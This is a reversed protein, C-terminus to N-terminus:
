ALWAQPAFPFPGPRHLREHAARSRITANWCRRVRALDYIALALVGAALVFVGAWFVTFRVASQSLKEHFPVAGLFVLALTVLTAVFLFNRRFRFSSLPKTGSRGPEKSQMGTLFGYGASEAM